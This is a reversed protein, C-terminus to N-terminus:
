EDHGLDELGASEKRSEYGAHGAVGGNFLKLCVAFGVLTETLSGLLVWAVLRRRPPCILAPSVLWDEAVLQVVGVDNSVHVCRRGGVRGLCWSSLRDGECPVVLTSASATLLAPVAGVVAPGRCVQRRAVAVALVDLLGVELEELDVLGSEDVIAVAAERLAAALALDAVPAGVLDEVGVAVLLADGDRLVDGAAVVDKASFNSGNVVVAVDGVPLEPGLGEIDLNSAAVVACLDRGSLLTGLEVVSVISEELPIKVPVIGALGDLCSRTGLKRGDRGGVLAAAV